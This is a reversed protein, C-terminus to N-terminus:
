AETRPLALTESEEPSPFTRDHLADVRAAAFGYISDRTLGLAALQRDNLRHLTDVITDIDRERRHAAYAERVKAVMTRAARVVGLDALAGAPQALASATQTTMTM